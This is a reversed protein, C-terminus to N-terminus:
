RSVGIGNSPRPPAASGPLSALPATVGASGPAFLREPLRSIAAAASRLLPSTRGAITGFPVKPATRDLTGRGGRKDAPPPAAAPDLTRPLPGDGSGYGATGTLAGDSLIRGQRATHRPHQCLAQIVPRLRARALRLGPM